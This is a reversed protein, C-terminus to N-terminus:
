LMSFPDVDLIQRVERRGRRHARSLVQRLATRRDGKLLVQYRWVGRLRALPAPAPGLVAVAGVERAAERLREAAARSEEQAASDSPSEFRLMVLHRYPPYGLERRTQVEQRVFSEYDHASASRIAYHETEYAQVLVRGPEDGRGARGAVQTLLQFTREASRFDPFNLSADAAIVGVLTVGPFDHGKAVMQTGVLIRADGRAFRALQRDLDTRKRVTDRDLRATAVDGFLAAIESEVRETGLGFSTVRHSRCSPCEDPAPEEFGCYHCVLADRRRHLTLSVECDGCRFPHGCDKCYIYPAFGRRNLFLIVQGGASLTKEVGTALAATFVGEGVREAKALNITEVAPMPRDNVRTPLIIPTYRRGDANARSELSPTASGLVVVANEHHGRVVALDRANYRPSEEQKFSTEHEEDVIVVGLNELPLFLASRAGLGILAEKRAVREWEDRREATTLASHFTAVREGFRARFRAGLQPTLAIEPVLVLATKGRALAQEIVRLYVETKGSGTVGQLLFTEYRKAEIALGIREIARAQAVTPEPPTDSPQAEMDPKHRQEEALRRVLGAKELTKLKAYAGKDATALVAALVTGSEPMRDLLARAGRQRETLTTPDTGPVREYAIARRPGLRKATRALWGKDVHRKLRASAARRTWGLDRELAAVAFGREFRLALELLANDGDRQKKAAADRGADTIRYRIAARRGAAPLAAALMEGPQAAYYDAAFLVLEILTAPLRPREPDIKQIDRLAIGEALPGDVIEAVYASTTRKGLPVRVAVGPAVADKLADPIGYDLLGVPESLLVRARRAGAPAPEPSPADRSGDAM